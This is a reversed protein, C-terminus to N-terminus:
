VLDKFLLFCCLGILLVKMWFTGRLGRKKRKIFETEEATFAVQRLMNQQKINETFCKFERMTMRTDFASAGLGIIVCGVAMIGTIGSKDFQGIIAFLGAAILAIAFVRRVKRESFWAALSTYIRQFISPVRM